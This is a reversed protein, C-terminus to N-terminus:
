AGDLYLRQGAKITVHEKATLGKNFVPTGNIVTQPTTQDLKLYRLDAGSQNLDSVFDFTGTFPNFKIPM